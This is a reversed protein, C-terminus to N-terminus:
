LVLRSPVNTRSEGSPGDVVGDLKLALVGRFFAETSGCDRDEELDRMGELLSSFDGIWSLEYM